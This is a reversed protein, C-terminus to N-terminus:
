PAIKDSGIEVGRGIGLAEGVSVSPSADASSTVGVDGSSSVASPKDDGNGGDGALRQSGIQSAKYAYDRLIEGTAPIFVIERSTGDKTAIIRERGLWTRHQDVITYGRSKLTSLIQDTPTLTAEVQALAPLSAGALGTGLVILFAFQRLM